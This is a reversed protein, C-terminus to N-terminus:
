VHTSAYKDVCTRTSIIFHITCTYPMLIHADLFKATQIKFLADIDIHM